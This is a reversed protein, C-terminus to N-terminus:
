VFQIGDYRYNIPIIYIDTSYENVEVIVDPEDAISWLHSIVFKDDGYMLVDYVKKGIM